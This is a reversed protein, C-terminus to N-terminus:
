REGAVAEPTVFVEVRRNLQRGAATDNGARPEREGRGATRLRYRSVGNDMLYDAVALARRESLRENYVEAGVSDTHGVVMVETEGYDRLVRALKGLSPAFGPNIRVSDFDFSVHSDLTLKLLDERVRQVEIERRREEEALADRFAREQRDMSSGVAAGTAGGIVAGAIAGRERDVQHGIVAGSVAGIVAGAATREGGALEGQPGPAACGAMVAVAMLLALPWRKMVREGRM